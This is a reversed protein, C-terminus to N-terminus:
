VQLQVAVREQESESQSGGAVIVELGCEKPNNPNPYMVPNSERKQGKKKKKLGRRPQGKREGHGDIPINSL